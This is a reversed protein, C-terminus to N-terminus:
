LIGFANHDYSIVKHFYSRCLPVSQFSIKCLFTPRPPVGGAFKQRGGGFLHLIASFFVANQSSKTLLVVCRKM